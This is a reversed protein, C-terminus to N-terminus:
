GSDLFSIEYISPLRLYALAPPEGDLQVVVVDVGVSRLAGTLAARETQVSVRPRFAVAHALMEVLAAGRGGGAPAGRSGDGQVGAEDLQSPEVGVAPERHRWEGHAARVWGVAHLAVLTSVAGPSEVAVFDEGVATLQGAVQRGAVTTVIVAARREAFGALVQGFRAGEEAQTRLWRERVRSEAAERARAEAAWGVLDGLAVEDDDFPDFPETM